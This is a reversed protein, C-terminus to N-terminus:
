NGTIFFTIPAVTPKKVLVIEIANTGAHGESQTVIVWAMSSNNTQLRSHNMCNFLRDGVADLEERPNSSKKCKKRHHV